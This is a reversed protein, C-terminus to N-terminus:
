TIAPWAADGANNNDDSELADPLAYIFRAERMLRLAPSATVHHRFMPGDFVATHFEGREGCPDVSAPLAALVAADFRRGVCGADLQTTDVCCLSARLGGDIMTQALTTTDQGWLPFVSTWGLRDCLAERWARVDALFLDGFAIHDLDPWRARLAALANAFGAEYSGNDAGSALPMVHLPLDAATAQAQLFWAPLRHVAIDGHAADVSTLLARVVWRPDQRLTHLM